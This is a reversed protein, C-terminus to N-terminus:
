MPFSVANDPPTELDGVELNFPHLSVVKFEASSSGFYTAVRAPQIAHTDYEDTHGNIHQLRVKTGHAIVFGYGLWHGAFRETQRFAFHFAQPFLDRSPRLGAVHLLAYFNSKKRADHSFTREFWQRGYYQLAFDSPPWSKKRGFFDRFFQFRGWKNDQAWALLLEIADKRSGNDFVLLSFPDVDLISALHVLDEGTQPLQGQTWRYITSPNLGEGSPDWHAILGERGDPFRAEILKELLLGDLIIPIKRNM